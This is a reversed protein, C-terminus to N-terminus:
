RENVTKTSDPTSQWQQKGNVYSSILRSPNIM